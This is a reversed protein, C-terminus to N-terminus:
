EEIKVEIAEDVPMSLCGWGSSGSSPKYSLIIYKGAHYPQAKFTFAPGQQLESTGPAIVWEDSGAPQHYLTYRYRDDDFDYRITVEDGTKAPQDGVLQTARRYKCVDFESIPMDPIVPNLLVASEIEGSKLTTQNDEPTGVIGEVRAPAPPYLMDHYDLIEQIGYMPGTGLAYAAKRVGNGTEVVVEYYKDYASSGQLVESIVAGSKKGKMLLSLQKPDPGAWVTYTCGELQCCRPNLWSMFLPKTPQNSEFVVRLDQIPTCNPDTATVQVETITTEMLAPDIYLEENGGNGAPPTPTASRAGIDENFGPRNTIPTDQGYSNPQEPAPPTYQPRRPSSPAASGMPENGLSASLEDPPTARMWFSELPVGDAYENEKVFAVVQITHIGRSMDRIDLPFEFPVAAGPILPVKDLTINRHGPHVYVIEAYPRLDACPSYPSLTLTGNIAKGNLVAQGEVFCTDPMKYIEMTNSNSKAAPAQNSRKATAPQELDPHPIVINTPVSKVVPSPCNAGWALVQVEYTGPALTCFPETRLGMGVAPQRKGDYRLPMWRGMAPRVEVSFEWEKGQCNVCQVMVAPLNQPGCYGNPDVRVEIIPDQCIVSPRVPESTVPSKAMADVVRAKNPRTPEEYNYRYGQKLDQSSFKGSLAQPRRFDAGITYVHQDKLGSILITDQQRNGLKQLGSILRKDGDANLLTGNDKIWFSIELEDLKSHTFYIAVQVNGKINGPLITANFEPAEKEFIGKLLDNQAGLTTSTLLGVFLLIFFTSSKTM